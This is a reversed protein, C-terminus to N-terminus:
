DNPLPPAHAKDRVIEMKGNEVKWITRDSTGVLIPCQHLKSLYIFTEVPKNSVLQIMWLAEAKKDGEAQKPVVNLSHSLADVRRAKEGDASVSVRFHGALVVEGSNKTAGLAYVLFGAGDPDDLVEFNYALKYLKGKLAETATERAKFRAAVKPPLPQGRLDQVEPQASGRFTVSYALSPGSPTDAIWYVRDGDKSLDTIWGRMKLSRAVPQTKLVLDSSRAAIQDRQYLENGLRGLTSVSFERIEGAIASGISSLLGAIFILHTKRM